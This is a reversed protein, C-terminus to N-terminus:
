CVGDGDVVGCSHRYGAVVTSADALDPVTVPINSNDNTGNGLQGNRNEGWCKVRGDELLACTSVGGQASIQQVHSLPPMVPMVSANRDAAQVLTASALMFKGLMSSTFFLALFLGVM